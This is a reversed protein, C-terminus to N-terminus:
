EGRKDANDKQSMASKDYWPNTLFDRTDFKSYEATHGSKVYFAFPFEATPAVRGSVEKATTADPLPGRLMSPWASKIDAKYTHTLKRNIIIPQYWVLQKLSKACKSVWATQRDEVPIVGFARVLGIGLRERLMEDLTNWGRHGAGSGKELKENDMETYYVCYSYGSNDTNRHSVYM